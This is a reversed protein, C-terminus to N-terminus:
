TKKGTKRDCGDTGKDKRQYSTKSPLKVQCYNLKHNYKYTCIDAYKSSHYPAERFCKKLISWSVPAKQSCKTCCSNIFFSLTSLMLIFTFSVHLGAYYYLILSNSNNESVEHLFVNSFCQQVITIIIIIVIIIIIAMIRLACM